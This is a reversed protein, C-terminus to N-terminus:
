NAGPVHLPVKFLTIKLNKCSINTKVNTTFSNEQYHWPVENIHIILMSALNIPELHNCDDNQNINPSVYQMIEGWVGCTPQPTTPPPWRGCLNTVDTRRASVFCALADFSRGINSNATQHALQWRWSATVHNSLHYLGMKTNFIHKITKIDQPWKWKCLNAWAASLKPCEQTFIDIYVRPQLKKYM